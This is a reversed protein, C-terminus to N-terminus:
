GTLWKVGPRRITLYDSFYHLSFIELPNKQISTSRTTKTCSGLMSGRKHNCRQGYSHCKISNFFLINANNQILKEKAWSIGCENVVIQRHLLSANPPGLCQLVVTTVRPSVATPIVIIRLEWFAPSVSPTTNQELLLNQARGM